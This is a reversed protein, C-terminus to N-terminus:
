HARAASFGVTNQATNSYLTYGAALPLTVRSKQHGHKCIICHTNKKQKLLVKFIYHDTCLINIRYCVTLKQMIKIGLIM